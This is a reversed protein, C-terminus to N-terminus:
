LNGSDKSQRHKKGNFAVVCSYSAVAVTGALVWLNVGRARGLLSSNSGLLTDAVNFLVIMMTWGSAKLGNLGMTFDVSNRRLANSISKGAADSIVGVLVSAGLVEANNIGVGRTGHEVVGYAVSAAGVLTGMTRAAINITAGVDKRVSERLAKAAWGDERLKLM